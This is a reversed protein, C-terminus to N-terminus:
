LVDGQWAWKVKGWRVDGLELGLLTAVELFENAQTKFVHTTLPWCWTPPTKRSSSSKLINKIVYIGSLVKCRTPFVQLHHCDRTCGVTTFNSVDFMMFISTNIHRCFNFCTSRGQCRDMIEDSCEPPILFTEFRKLIVQGGMGLSLSALFTKLSKRDSGIAAVLDGTRWSPRVARRPGTSGSHSATTSHTNFSDDNSASFSVSLRFAKIKRRTSIEPGLRKSALKRAAATIAIGFWKHLKKTDSPQNEIPASNSLWSQNLYALIWRKMLLNIWLKNMLGNRSLYKLPSENILRNNMAWPEHSLTRPELSTAWPDHNMASIRRSPAWAQPPGGCINEQGHAM